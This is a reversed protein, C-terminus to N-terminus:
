LQYWTSSCAVTCMYIFNLQLDVKYAIFLPAYFFCNCVNCNCVTFSPVQWLLAIISCTLHNVSPITYQKCMKTFGLIQVSTHLVIKYAILTYSNQLTSCQIIIHKQQMLYHLYTLFQISGVYRGVYTVVCTFITCTYSSMMFAHM